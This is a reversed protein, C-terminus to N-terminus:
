STKAPHTTGNTSLMNSHLHGSTWTLSRQGDHMHTSSAQGHPSSLHVYTANPSVMRITHQCEVSLSTKNSLSSTTESSKAASLAM